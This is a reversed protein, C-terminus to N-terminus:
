GRWACKEEVANFFRDYVIIKIEHEDDSLREGSLDFSSEGGVIEKLSRFYGDIYLEAKVATEDTEFVVQNDQIRLGSLTPPEADLIQEGGLNPLRIAFSKRLDGVQEGLTLINAPDAVGTSQEAFHNL